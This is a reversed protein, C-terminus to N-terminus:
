RANNLFCSTLYNQWVAKQIKQKKKLVSLGWFYFFITVNKGMAAAGTAIIM